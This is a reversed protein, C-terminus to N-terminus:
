RLLYSQLYFRVLLAIVPLLLSVYALAHQAKTKPRLHDEWFYPMEFAFLMLAFVPAAVAWNIPSMVMYMIRPNELLYTHWITFYSVLIFLPLAIEGMALHFANPRISKERDSVLLVSRVWFEKVAAYLVILILFFESLALAGMNTLAFAAILGSFGVRPVFSAHFYFPVKRYLADPFSYLLRSKYWVAYVEAFLAVIIGVGLYYQFESSDPLRQLLMPDVAAIVVALVFNVALIKYRYFFTKNNPFGEMRPVTRDILPLLYFFIMSRRM